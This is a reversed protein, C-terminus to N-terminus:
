WGLLWYVFLELLIKLRLNARLILIFIIGDIVYSNTCLSVKRKQPGKQELSCSGM